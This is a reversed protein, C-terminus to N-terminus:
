MSSSNMGSKGRGGVLCGPLPASEEARPPPPAGRPAAGGGGGWGGVGVLLGAV